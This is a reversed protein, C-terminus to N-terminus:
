QLLSTTAITASDRHYVSEMHSSNHYMPIDMYDPAYEIVEEMPQVDPITDVYQRWALSLYMLYVDIVIVCLIIKM